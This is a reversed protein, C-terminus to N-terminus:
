NSISLCVFLCYIFLYKWMECTSGLELEPHKGQGGNILDFFSLLIEFPSCIDVISNHIKLVNM